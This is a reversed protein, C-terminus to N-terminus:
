KKKKRGKVIRQNSYKRIKRTKVGLAHAGWPTKPYKMGISSGGEGGGHPHDCPNMAKGRVKPRRGLWRTRGAKGIKVNIHDPNSVIGITARCNKDVLIVSQSPLKVQIKDGDRGIIQASTGASRVIQGGSFLKLEVNYINFGTPINKLQLRNGTKLECKNANIIQDGVKLGIPALIYRKEGDAFVILAISATRNPDYEIEKVTAPIDFKDQKFDVLRYQRKSGGGRHRCTIVGRNNRGAKKKLIQTLKKAPKNNSIDERTLVTMQRRGPTTPKYSKIAM